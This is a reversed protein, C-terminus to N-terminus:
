YSFFKNGIDSRHWAGDFTIENIRSYAAENAELINTGLGVVTFCRGGNTKILGNTREVAGFFTITNELVLNSSAYTPLRVIKGTEPDSPYGRSAIVVAVASHNSIHIPTQEITDTHVAELLDVFDTTILPAMSQTAPDNFRVHYDVLKPGAETLILSFILVGKYSLDETMMGKLTPEIITEVVQLQTQSNFVPVPCISGMGGTAAGKGYEEAKTYESCLPMMQYHTGDTLITVTLPIGKLHEEILIQGEELLRTGFDMLKQRDSSDIMVRSPALANQKIVFRRDPYEDLFNSLQDRNEAIFHEPVPINHRATFDRAFSRDAELQLSAKPAGFTKIGAELLSDVVGAALPAETGCFVYDIQHETCAAIVADADSPSVHSLNVGIKDTGANGPAIFLGTIRKSKSFLWSIAHDKAGSGLVLVKV